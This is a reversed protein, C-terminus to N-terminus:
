KQSDMALSNPVPLYLKVCVVRLSFSLFISIKLHTKHVELESLDFLDCSIEWGSTESCEGFGKLKFRTVYRRRPLKCSGIAM